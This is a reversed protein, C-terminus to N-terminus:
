TYLTAFASGSVKQIKQLSNILQTAETRYPKSRLYESDTFVYMRQLWRNKCVGEDWRPTFDTRFHMADRNSIIFLDGACIQTGVRVAKLASKLSGLALKAKLNDQAAETYTFDLRLLPREADGTIIPVAPSYDSGLPVPRGTFSSPFSTRFLPQRLIRLEDDTVVGSEIAQRLSATGTIAVNEHDQRLGTLLLYSPLFPHATNEVHNEFFVSGSNEQRKSHAFVPAVQHVLDGGKEDQYGLTHGLLSGVLYLGYETVCTTKEPSAKGDTPTAPLYRDLPMNRVVLTGYENPHATFKAMENKIRSPLKQSATHITDFFADSHPSAIDTRVQLATIIKFIAHQESDSLM